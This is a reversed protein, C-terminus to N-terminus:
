CAVETNFTVSTRATPDCASGFDAYLAAEEPAFETRWSKQGGGTRVVAPRKRCANPCTDPM